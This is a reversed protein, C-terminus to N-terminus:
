NINNSKKIVDISAEMALILGNLKLCDIEQENIATQLQAIKNTNEQIM